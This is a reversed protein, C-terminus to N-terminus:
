RALIPAGLVGTIKSPSEKGFLKDLSSFLGFVLPTIILQLVVTPIWEGAVAEFSINAPFFLYTIGWVLLNQLLSMLFVVLLTGVTRTLFVAIGVMKAILFIWLYVTMIMGHPAGSLSEVFWGIILSLLAGEVLYRHFSLYVIVILILDPRFGKFLLNLFTSQFIIILLSILLIFIFNTRLLLKRIM